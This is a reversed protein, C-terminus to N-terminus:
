SYYAILRQVHDVPRLGVLAADREIVALLTTFLVLERESPDEGVQQLVQAASLTQQQYICAAAECVQRVERRTEM